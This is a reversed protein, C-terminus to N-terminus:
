FRFLPTAQLPASAPAGRRGSPQPRSSTRLQGPPINGSDAPRETMAAVTVVVGATVAAGVGGWFWWRTFVSPSQMRAAVSKSAGAPVVVSTEYTRYDPHRVVVRHAGSGVNAEVPAVGFRRGDVFVEAGAASSSVSLVGTTQRSFLDLQVALDSGGPLQVTRRVPFYGDADVEIEAAGATVQVPGPLPSRGVVTDRVLVRAGAVNTKITLKTVRQRLEAILKPLRPVRAKLAPDASAQFAELRDLAEPYRGLAQLARGMNYLLAPDRTIAYAASYAALADTHRLAEMAEDGAKRDAAARAQPDAAADAAPAPDQAPQARAAPALSACVALSLGLAVIRNV